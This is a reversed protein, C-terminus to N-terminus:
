LILDGYLQKLKPFRNIIPNNPLPIFNQHYVKGVAKNAILFNFGLQTMIKEMEPSFVDMCWEKFFIGHEAYDEIQKYFSNMLMMYNTSNRYDPLISFTLIIGYYIGPFCLIECNEFKYDTGLLQGEKSKNFDDQNIAIIEWDGIIRSEENIMYQFTETSNQIFPIWHAPTGEQEETVGILNIYDNEVLQIAIKEANYGLKMLDEYKVMRISNPIRLESHQNNTISETFSLKEIKSKHTFIIEIEEALKHIHQEIPDTIADLWHTGGLYYELSERIKFEAIKFPIIIKGYNACSNIENFVHRSQNSNNSFILVCAQCNKIARVISGAYEDGPTADRYSIWCRIKKCELINVIADAIQKDKTSYSIFIDHM